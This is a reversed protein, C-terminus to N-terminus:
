RNLRPTPRRGSQPPRDQTLPDGTHKALQQAVRQAQHTLNSQCLHHHLSRLPRHQRARRRKRHAKRSRTRARSRERSRSDRRPRQHKPTNAESHSPAPTSPSITIALRYTTVYHCMSLERPTRRSHQLYWRIQHKNFTHSPPHHHRRMHHFHPLQLQCTTSRISNFPSLLTSTHPAPTFIPRPSSAPHHFAAQQM